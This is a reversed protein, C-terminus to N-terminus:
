DQKMDRFLAEMDSHFKVINKLRDELIKQNESPKEKAQQKILEDIETLSEKQLNTSEIWKNIYWNMFSKFLQNNAQYLDKRVGKKWVKTVLNVDSLTRVSTSMSTKSKGLAESMEDLTLPKESLYLYAFLRSELPSLNFMELTKSFEIIIKNTLKENEAEHM